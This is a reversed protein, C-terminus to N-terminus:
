ELQAFWGDIEEPTQGPEIWIQAGIQPKGQGPAEAVGLVALFGLLAWSIAFSRRWKRHAVVNDRLRRRWVFGTCYVRIRM